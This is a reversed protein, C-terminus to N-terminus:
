LGLSVLLLYFWQYSFADNQMILVKPIKIGKMAREELNGVIQSKRTQKQMVTLITSWTILHITYNRSCFLYLHLSLCKFM